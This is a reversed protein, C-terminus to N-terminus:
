FDRFAVFGSENSNLNERNNFANLRRGAEKSLSRLRDIRQTPLAVVPGCGIDIATELAMYRQWALPFPVDTNGNDATVDEPYKIGNLVLSHDSDTPTSMLYLTPADQREVYVRSPIGTCNLPDYDRDFEWRRILEVPTTRGASDRIFADKVFALPEGSSLAADLDIDSDDVTLPIVQQSPVYWWYKKTGVKEALILNFHQLAVTFEESNAAIDYPTLVGAFRLAAEAVDAATFM